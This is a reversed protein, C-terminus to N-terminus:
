TVEQKAKRVTKTAERTMTQHMISDLNMTFTSFTTVIAVVTSFIITAVSSKVRKALAKYAKNVEKSVEKGISDFDQGLM